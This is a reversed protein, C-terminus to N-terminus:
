QLAYKRIFKQVLEPRPKLQLTHADLNRVYVGHLTRIRSFATYLQAISGFVDAGDIIARDLTQGQIKHMTVAYAPELPLLYVRPNEPSPMSYVNLMTGNPTEVIAHWANQKSIANTKKKGLCELAQLTGMQGNCAVLKKNEYINHTIMVRCGLKLPEMGELTIPEGELAAIAADNISKVNDRKTCLVLCDQPPVRTALFGDLLGAARADWRHWRLAQLFHLWEDRAEPDPDDFRYLNMLQFVVPPNKKELYKWLDTTFFPFAISELQFMDGFLCLRAGGFPELTGNNRKLKADLACFRSGDLMSIEDIIVNAIFGTQHTSKLFRDITQANDISTVSMGTPGLCVTKPLIQLLQHLVRSKGAGAPGHVFMHGMAHECAFDVIQQQELSLAM